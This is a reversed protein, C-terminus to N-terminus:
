GYFVQLLKHARLVIGAFPQPEENFAAAAGAHLVPHFEIVGV